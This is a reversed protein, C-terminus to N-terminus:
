PAGQSPRTAPRAPQSQAGWQRCFAAYDECVRDLLRQLASRSLGAQEARTLITQFASANGAEAALWALATWAELQQPALAVAAELLPQVDPRKQRPVGLLWVAARVYADALASEIPVNAGAQRLTEAARDLKGALLLAAALRLRIPWALQQRQQTQIPPLAELAAKLLEIAQQPKGPNAPIVFQGAEALAVARLHPARPTLPQYLAAARRALQVSQGFRGLEYMAYAGLRLTEPVRVLMLTDADTDPGYPGVSALLEDILRAFGKNRAMQHLRHRWAPSPLGARLADRMMGLHDALLGPYNTLALLAQPDFPRKQRHIQWNRHATALWYRSRQPDIDGYLEALMEALRAGYSALYGLAPAFGSLAAAQNYAEQALRIARQRAQERAVPQTAASRSRRFRELAEATAFYRARMARERAALRRVPDLLWGAAQQADRDAELYAGRQLGRISAYEARVGRSDMWLMGAAVAALVLLGVGGIRQPRPTAGALPEAAEDERAIAWLVGILTYFVAPVGPLRLAVGFMADAMLATISAALALRLGRQARPGRATTQMATTLVALWGALFVVGGVLGIETLVEFLENHAHEVLEAMFAAPDLVRDQVSWAGALRPYTGAGMGSVPRQWWLLAAYKWAYLRFRITPGRAMIISERANWLIWGTGALVVAAGIAVAIRWRAPTRALLLGLLAVLLGVGAARSGALVFAALVVILMVSAGLLTLWRGRGRRWQGIAPLGLSAAILMPPLLSAALLSPNGLPFGPRHYPNRWHYYALCLAAAVTGIGALVVLLRRADCARLTLALSVAWLVGFGYLAAQTLSGPPDGSWAASAASLAVWLLLAVAAVPWGRVWSRRLGAPEAVWLRLAALGLAIVVAAEFLLAKIEVGRASHVLGFLSLADVVRKLWSGAAWPIAGPYSQGEPPSMLLYSGALTGAAVVLVAQSIRRALPAQPADHRSGVPNHTHNTM